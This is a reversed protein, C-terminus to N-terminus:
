YVYMKCNFCYYVNPGWLRRIKVLRMGCLPCRDGPSEFRIKLMDVRRLPAAGRPLRVLVRCEGEEGGADDMRM